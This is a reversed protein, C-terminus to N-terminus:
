GDFIRLNLINSKLQYLSFETKHKKISADIKKIRKDPTPHTSKHEPVSFPVTSGKLMEMVGVRKYTEYGARRVFLIGLDDRDLTDDRGNTLVKHQGINAIMGGLDADM